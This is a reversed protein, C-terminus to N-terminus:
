AQTSDPFSDAQLGLSPAILIKRSEMTAAIFAESLYDRRIPPWVPGGRCINFATVDTGALRQTKGQMGKDEHM